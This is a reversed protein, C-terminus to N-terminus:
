VEEGASGGRGFVEMELELELLSGAEGERERKWM